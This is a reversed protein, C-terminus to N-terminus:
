IKKIIKSQGDDLKIRKLDDQLCRHHAHVHKLFHSLTEHLTDIIDSPIANSKLMDKLSQHLAVADEKTTTKSRVIGQEVHKPKLAVLKEEVLEKTLSKLIDSNPDQAILQSSAWLKDYIENYFGGLTMKRKFDEIMKSSFLINQVSEINCAKVKGM